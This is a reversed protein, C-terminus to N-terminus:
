MECQHHTVYWKLENLRKGITLKPRDDMVILDNLDSIDNLQKYIDNVYHVAVEEEKSGKKPPIICVQFPAISQPWRIERESSLTEVAAAILRTVGIGMCGMQLPAPKGNTQLYEGKQRATYTEGLYFTHGIEIGRSKTLERSKCKVCVDELTDLQEDFKTSHGCNACLSLVEDGMPALFHYEHSISGGMDSADAEVAFLKSFQLNFNVCMGTRVDM